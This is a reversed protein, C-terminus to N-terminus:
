QFKGFTKKCWVNAPPHYSIWIWKANSAIEPYRAPTSVASNRVVSASEWMVSSCSNSEWNCTTSNVCRWSGDTVNGNSFSALIGVKQNSYKRVKITVSQTNNPLVLRRPWANERQAGNWILKTGALIQCDCKCKPLAVDM